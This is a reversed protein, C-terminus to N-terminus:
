NAPTPKWRVLSCVALGTNVLHHFQFSVKTVSKPLWACITVLNPLWIKTVLNTKQVLSIIPEKHQSDMLQYPSEREWLDLLASNKHKNATLMFFSNFLCNLQQHHQVGYCENSTVTLHLVWKLQSASQVNLYLSFLTNDNQARISYLSTIKGTYSIGNHLYSLRIEM